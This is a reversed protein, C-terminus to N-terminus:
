WATYGGDVLLDAGTMFSSDDSLLFAASAAIEEPRGIRGIPHLPALAREAEALSGRSAILRHTGVAGPSLTNVRIKQAAHDLAMVKALNLLGAKAACYAASGAVAVHGFQSAVHVISGGGAAAIPPVAYKSMLFAGTLSVAIERNWDGLALDVVTGDTSPAAANNVLGHLAGFASLSARVAAEASAPATVDGTLALAADGLAAATETVGAEDLDLCAVRAGEAVLRQAIARGIGKGAGTVLIVRGAFRAPIATSV